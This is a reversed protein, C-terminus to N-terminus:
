AHSMQFPLALSHSHDTTQAKKLAGTHMRNEGTHLTVTALVHATQRFRKLAFMYTSLNTLLSM